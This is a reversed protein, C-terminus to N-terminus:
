TDGDSTSFTASFNLAVGNSMSPTNQLWRPLSQVKSVM